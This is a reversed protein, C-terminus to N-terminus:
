ICEKRGKMNCQIVMLNDLNEQMELMKNLFILLVKEKKGDYDEIESLQTPLLKFSLIECCSPQISELLIVM